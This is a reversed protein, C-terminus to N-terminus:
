ETRSATSASSSHMFVWPALRSAAPQSQLIEVRQESDPESQADEILGDIEDNKLVTLPGDSTLLPTITQAADFEANGGGWYTSNRVTKL